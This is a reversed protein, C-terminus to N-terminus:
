SSSQKLQDLKRALAEAPGKEKLIESEFLGLEPKPLLFHDFGDVEGVLDKGERIEGPALREAEDSYKAREYFVVGSQSGNDWAMIGAVLGDAVTVLRCRELM